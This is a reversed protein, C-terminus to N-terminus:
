VGPIKFEQFTSVGLVEGPHDVIWQRAREIQAPSGGNSFKIVENPTTYTGCGPCLITKLSKKPATGLDEVESKCIPCELAMAAM